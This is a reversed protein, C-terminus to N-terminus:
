GSVAGFVSGIAQIGPVGSMLDDRPVLRYWAAEGDRVVPRTPYSDQRPELWARLEALPIIHLDDKAVRLTSFFVPDPERFLTEVEDETQDIALYYYYLDDAASSFLWGPQRNAGVTELAYAKADSRYFSRMRDSAKSPDDGIYPDSKVKISHKGSPTMYTIDVKDGRAAIASEDNARVDVRGNLQLYTVIIRVAVAHLLKTGRLESVTDGGM